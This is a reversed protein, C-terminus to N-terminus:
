SNVSAPRESIMNIKTKGKGFWKFLIRAVVITVIVAPLYLRLFLPTDFEPNRSCMYVCATLEVLVLIDTIIYVLKQKLNM